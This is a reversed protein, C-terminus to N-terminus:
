ENEILNLAIQPDHVRFWFSTNSKKLLIELTERHLEEITLNTEILDECKKRLFSKKSLGIVWPLEIKKAKLRKVLQDFGGILDWNELYTKSFGFGPDFLVRKELDRDTFWQHARLFHDESEDIINQGNKELFTMHDLVVSRNPIRTFTHIYKIDPLAFLLDELSNDLVGSVDNMLLNIDPFIKKIEHYFYYFNQPKYTDISLEKIILQPHNKLFLVFQHFRNREEEVSISQNKPATSEFGIDVVLNDINLFHTLTKLLQNPDLHLGADSFSNPTLNIVGLIKHNPM